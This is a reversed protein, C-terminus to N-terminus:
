RATPDFDMLSRGPAFGSCARMSDYLVLVRSEKAASLIVQGAILPEEVGDQDVGGRIFAISVKLLRGATDWVMRYIPLGSLRDIYLVQRAETSFPDRSLFEVRSLERLVLTVSNPVWNGVGEFRRHQATFDIAAAGSWKRYVCGDERRLDGEAGEFVPVLLSVNSVGLVDVLEVKGSWLLLDDTSFM